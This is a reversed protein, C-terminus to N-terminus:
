AEEEDDKKKKAALLGFTGLLSLVGLAGTARDEQTGTNPLVAQPQSVSSDTESVENPLQAPVEVTQSPQEAPQAAPVEAPIVTDPRPNTDDSPTAPRQQADGTPSVPSVTRFVHTVVDGKTETRVFVYGEIEGHEFAENAEGLVTPAKADAPKLENGNEDIWKTILLTPHEAVPPLILNGNEDVGTTGIPDTYEPLELVPPLITTVEEGSLEHSINTKPDTIIVKGTPEVVVTKGPNAKEVSEKVKDQEDKSLNNVDKVPVKETPTVPTFDQNVLDSGPITHTIGTNPDKLTATGDAGVTVEKGPNKAQVKEKVKDKEAQTLEGSKKVPVKDTPTVPEFDQNVLETGSITHSIGTTPDTVTATGDAGVTVEKDPNKAKVKDAVQKKEEPTLHAKDKVPVKEDPKVPEFDQNVLDTGPITHSIGTTPDTVTATGDDGVTVEKGPNKAKVKDEVQKKEEPTLHAKDKVSVKETPKVPEFDQNVLDTGPTKYSIGTTPDTVTVTGDEGVTVEKGPNKAKVKDEVQKKEEPTLHAKDKVPVKETPKVPTFDQNVLDTGPITHSIGTTPDTVTATGDDGVTVEKGPNKAKVKDEVQKKEEPTLHAKDQVPVKETPKVPKFDKVTLDKAPILVSEGIAKDTVTVNGKDDATVITNPNSEKVKDVLKEIEQPTLHEPDSVVIPLPIRVEFERAPEGKASTLKAPVEVSNATKPLKGAEQVKPTENTKADPLKDNPVTVTGEGTVEYNNGNITVTSGKPYNGQDPDTVKYTVDGTDPNQEVKAITPVKSEVLKAPVEVSNGDKPLKNEETVTGKNTTKQAPLDNNTLIVKGNNIVKEGVVGPLTVKTGNPYNYNGEGVVTIEVSGTEPNQKGVTFIPVKSDELTVEKADSSDSYNDIETTENSKVKATVTGVPIPTSVHITAKGESNVKGSGIEHNNKDYLIATLDTGKSPDVTVEVDVPTNLNAKGKLNTQIIPKAPKQVIPKWLTLVNPQGDGNIYNYKVIGDNSVELKTLDISPHAERIADKVKQIEESSLHEMDAVPTKKVTNFEVVTETAVSSVVNNKHSEIYTKIVEGVHFKDDNALAFELDEGNGTLRYKADSANFGTATKTFVVERNNYNVYVKDGVEVKNNAIIPVSNEGERPINSITMPNVELLPVKVEKTSTDDYTLQVTVVKKGKETTISGENLIAKNNPVPEGTPYSIHNIVEGRQEAPVKDRESENKPMKISVEGIEPHSLNAKTTTLPVRVEESSGDPYAVTATVYYGATDKQVNRNTVTLQLEPTNKDIKVTGKEATFKLKNKLSAIDEESLSAGSATIDKSILQKEVTPVYKTAQTLVKFVVRTPNSPTDSQNRLENGSADTAVAYRTVIPFGNTWNAGNNTKDLVGTIMIDRPSAKETNPTRTFKESYTLGYALENGKNNKESLRAEILKGSEDTFTGLKFNNSETPTVYVIHEGNEDVTTNTEDFTFKPLVREGALTTKTNLNSEVSDTTVAKATIEANDKIERDKITVTGLAHDIEVGDTPQGSLTWRDNVKTATVTQNTPNDKNANTYKFEFKNVQAEKVPTIIVDGNTQAEIRPATPRVKVTVDITKSPRVQTAGPQADNGSQSVPLTAKVKYTRVGPTNTDTSGVWEYTTEAPLEESGDAKKVAAKAQDNTLTAGKNVTVGNSDVIDFVKHVVRASYELNDTTPSNTFRGYNYKGGFEYNTTTGVPDKALAATFEDGPKIVKDNGKYIWTMGGPITGGNHYYLSSGGSRATDPHKFDYITNAIPFTNLVKYTLTVKQTRNEGFNVTAEVTKTEESGRAISNTELTATVTAGQPLDQRENGEQVQVLKNLEAPTLTEGRVINIINRAVLNYGVKFFGLSAGDDDDEHSKNESADTTKAVVEYITPNVEKKLSAIVDAKEVGNEVILKKTNGNKVWINLKSRVTNTTANTVDDKDYNDTVKALNKFSVNADLRGAQERKSALNNTTSREVQPAVPDIPVFYVNIVNTTTDKNEGRKSLTTSNVYEPRLYLQAKYIAGSGNVVHNLSIPQIGNTGAISANQLNTGYANPTGKGNEVLKNPSNDVVHGGSLNGGDVLDLTNIYDSGKKFENTHSDKSYGERGHEAKEKDDGRAEVLSPNEVSNTGAKPKLHMMRLVDNLNIGQGKTADYYYILSRNGNVSSDTTSNSWAFGKDTDRNPLKAGEINELLFDKRIDAFRTVFGEGRNKNPETQLWGRKKDKTVVIAGSDSIEINEDKLGLTPNAKKLAIRIAAKEADNLKSDNAQVIRNTANEKLNLRATVEKENSNGSMTSVGLHTVKVRAYLTEGERLGKPRARAIDSESFTWETERSGQAFSHEAIPTTDDQDSYLQITRTAEKNVTGIESTSEGINVINKVKINPKYGAQGYLLDAGGDITPATPDVAVLIRREIITPAFVTRTTSNNNAIDGAQSFDAKIMRAYHGMAISAGKSKDAPNSSIGGNNISYAMGDPLYSYGRDAKSSDNIVKWYDKPNINKAGNTVNVSNGDHLGIVYSKGGPQGADPTEYVNKFDLDVVRYKFKFTSVDKSDSGTVTLTAEHEGLAYSNDVTGNSLKATYKQTESGTQQSGPFNTSTVGGPLGSVTVNSIKGANDWAKLEPNFTAGRFITFIPEGATTGLSVGNLTAQPKANDTVNFNVEKKIERPAYLTMGNATLSGNQAGTPFVAKAVHRVLGLNTLKTNQDANEWEWSMGGPFFKNGQDTSGNLTDILYNHSDGIKDNLSAAKPSNRVMVDAITYEFKYEKANGSLDRVTVSAERTVLPADDDVKTNSFHYDGNTILTRAYDKNGSKNFWVGNPINKVNFEAITNSNDTVKFTPNFNAGRFIVFRNDSARETLVKGNMMVTPAQTDRSKVTDEASTEDSNLYTAIAKIKTNDEVTPETISVRGTSTDVTVGDPRNGVVGWSSGEKKVTLTTDSHQRTPRYSVVLKDTTGNPTVSASGDIPTAITPAAPKAEKQIRKFLVDVYDVSDDQNNTSSNNENDYYTVKVQKKVWVPTTETITPVSEVAQGNTNVKQYQQRIAEKLKELNEKSIKGGPLVDIDDPVTFLETKHNDLTLEIVRKGTSLSAGGVWQVQKVAQEKIKDSTRPFYSIRDKYFSNGPNPTGMDDADPTKFGDIQSSVDTYSKIYTDANGLDAKYNKTDTVEKAVPQYVDSQTVIKYPLRFNIPQGKVRAEIYLTHNGKTRDATTNVGDESRQRSFRNHFSKFYDASFNGTSKYTYYDTVDGRGPNTQSNNNYTDEITVANSMLGSATDLTGIGTGKLFTTKLVNTNVTVNYREQVGYWQQYSKHMFRGSPIKEYSKMGAIYYLPAETDAKTDFEVEYTNAADFDRPRFAFINQTSSKIKDYLKDTIRIDDQSMGDRNFYVSTDNRVFDDLTYIGGRNGVIGNQTNAVNEYYPSGNVGDNPSGVATLYKDAEGNFVQAVGGHKVVSGNEKLTMNQVSHGSPVTFYYIPNQRSDKGNNYTIKWHFGDSTKNVVAWVKQKLRKVPQPGLDPNNRGNASSNDNHSIYLFTGPPYGSGDGEKTIYGVEADPLNDSGQADYVIGNAARYIASRFYSEPLMKKGNDLDRKGSHERTVALALKKEAQKGQKMLEEIESATLQPNKLGNEVSRVVEEVGELLKKTEPREIKRAVDLYRVLYGSLAELRDKKTVTGEEKGAKESKRGDETGEVSLTSKDAKKLEKEDQVKSSVTSGEIVKAPKDLTLNGDLKAESTRTANLVEKNEKSVASAKNDDKSQLQRVQEAMAQVRGVLTAVAEESTNEDGLLRKSEDTLQSIQSALSSM